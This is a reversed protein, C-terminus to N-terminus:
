RFGDLRHTMRQGTAPLDSSRQEAAFEAVPEALATAQFGPVANAGECDIRRRVEAHDGEFIARLVAAVLNVLVADHM